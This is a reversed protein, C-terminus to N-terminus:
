FGIQCVNILKRNGLFNRVEHRFKQQITKWYCKYCYLVETTIQIILIITKIYLHLTDLHGLLLIIAM